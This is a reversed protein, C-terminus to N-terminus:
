YLFTLPFAVPLSSRNTPILFSLYLLDLVTRSIVDLLQQQHHNAQARAKPHIRAQRTDVDVADRCTCRAAVNEEIEM